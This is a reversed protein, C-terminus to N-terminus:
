LFLVTGQSASFFVGAICGTILTALFAAFLAKFGLGAIEDRRGPVLASIGGVFIAVSAVHTFGCLVYSMVVVTRPDQILGQALFGALDRYAVVETLIWREGLLRSAPVLDHPSLGLCWAFPIMLWGLIKELSLDPQGPLFLGGRHIFANLMAVLGLIAILLTGIGAALKMGEWAGDIIAAMFNSHVGRGEAPVKGMTLPEGTEPIMTKTIMVSAPVSLISASILHGAISPFADKLFSVYIALTTSAVSAMCATLVTFLESRTLKELFPRISFVAEVGVFINSSVSLAEAGSLRMFKHFVKAFCRVVPQLLFFYYLLSMLASFFIVAPLMQFAMFYGLSPEGNEGRTGPPLALPGFLFKAGEGAYSLLRLVARNAFLFLEKSQPILFVLAGFVLALGLSGALTVWSVSSKKESFVYALGTLIFIGALSILREM